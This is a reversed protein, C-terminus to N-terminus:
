RCRTLTTKQEEENNGRKQGSKIVYANMTQTQHQQRTHAKNLGTKLM